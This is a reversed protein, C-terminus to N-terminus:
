LKVLTLFTWVLSKTLNDSFHSTKERKKKENYSENKTIPTKM